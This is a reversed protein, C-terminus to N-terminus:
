FGSSGKVKLTDFSRFCYLEVLMKEGPEINVLNTFSSEVTIGDRIFKYEIEIYEITKDTTNDLVGTATTQETWENEVFTWEINQVLENLQENTLPVDHPPITVGEQPIEIITKDDMMPSCGVLLVALMGASVIWKGIKV